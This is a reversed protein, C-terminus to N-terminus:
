AIAPFKLQSIQWDGKRKRVEICVEGSYTHSKLSNEIFAEFEILVNVEGKIKKIQSNLVECKKLDFREYMNKFEQLYDRAEERCLVHIVDERDEGLYSKMFFDITKEVILKENPHFEEYVFHRVLGKIPIDLTKIFLFEEVIFKYMITDEIDQLSTLFIGKKALLKLLKENELIIEEATLQSLPKIRPKGIYEYIEVEKADNKVKEFALIHDLMQAEIEAPLDIGEPNHEVFKAGKMELELRKIKNDMKLEEEPDLEDDFESNDMKM